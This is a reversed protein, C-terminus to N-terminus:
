NGFGRRLSVPAKRLPSVEKGSFLVLKKGLVNLFAVLRAQRQVAILYVDRKCFVCTETTRELGTWHSVTMLVCIVAPVRPSISPYAVETLPRTSYGWLVLLSSM